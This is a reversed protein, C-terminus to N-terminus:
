HLMTETQCRESRSFTSPRDTLGDGGYKLRCCCCCLLWGVPGFWDDIVEVTSDVWPDWREQKWKNWKQELARCYSSGWFTRQDINDSASWINLTAATNAGVMDAERYTEYTQMTAEGTILMNTSLTHQQVLEPATRNSTSRQLLDRRHERLPNADSTIRERHIHMKKSRQGYNMCTTQEHTVGIPVPVSLLLEQDSYTHHGNIMSPISNDEQILMSNSYGTLTPPYLTDSPRGPVQSTSPSSTTTTSSTLLNLSPIIPGLVSDDKGSANGTTDGNMFPHTELNGAGYGSRIPRFRPPRQTATPASSSRFVSQQRSEQINPTSRIRNVKRASPSRVDASRIGLFQSFRNRMSRSPDTTERLGDRELPTITPLFLPQRQAETWSPVGPPTDPRELPPLLPKRPQVYIEIVSPSKSIRQEIWNSSNCYSRRHTLLDVDDVSFSKQRRSLTSSPSQLLFLDDSNLTQSHLRGASSTFNNNGASSSPIQSTPVVFSPNSPVTRMTTSSKQEIITTLQTGYGYIIPTVGIEPIRPIEPLVPPGGTNEDHCTRQITNDSGSLCEADFISNQSSSAVDSSSNRHFASKRWITKRDSLRLSNTRPLLPVRAQDSLDPLASDPQIQEEM